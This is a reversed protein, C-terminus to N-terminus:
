AVMEPGQKPHRPSGPPLTLDLIEDRLLDYVLKVGFGHRIEPIPAVTIDAMAFDKTWSRVITHPRPLLGNEFLLQPKSDRRRYTCQGRLTLDGNYDRTLKQWCSKFNRWNRM